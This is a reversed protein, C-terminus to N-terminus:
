IPTHLAAHAFDAHNTGLDYLFVVLTHKPNAKRQSSWVPSSRVHGWCVEYDRTNQSCQYQCSITGRTRVALIRGTSATDATCFGLIRGTSATDEPVAAVVPPVRLISGRFVQLVPFNPM